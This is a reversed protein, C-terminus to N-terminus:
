PRRAETTVEGRSSVDALVDRLTAKLEIEPSWGVLAVLRSADGRIDAPDDARVLAADIEIDITVGEMAALQAIIWRISVSVGSCVNVVTPNAPLRSDVLAELLLAYARVVDRVDSFDRRVDVNGARIFHRGEAVAAVIREALAPVVFERRQGPGTHNFSRAIAIPVGNAEAFEFAAREQALKSLGYPQNTRLPADERLPLDDVAPHGYVEASSVVLVPIPRRVSAAAADLVNRTGGGNVALAREPDRRAAPGFSVAALHAIADPRVSSVLASVPRRDTIDLDDSPPTAIVEHGRTDLAAVLWRGAFGAAGTV